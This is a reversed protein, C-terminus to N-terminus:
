SLYCLPSLAKGALVTKRKIWRLKRSSHHIQIFILGFLDLVM